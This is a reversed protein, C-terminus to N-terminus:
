EDSSQPAPARRGRKNQEAKAQLAAAREPQLAALVEPARDKPCIVSIRGSTGPPILSHHGMGDIKDRAAQEEGAPVDYTTTTLHM